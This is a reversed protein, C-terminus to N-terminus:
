KFHSPRRPTASLLSVKKEDKLPYDIKRNDDLHKWKLSPEM